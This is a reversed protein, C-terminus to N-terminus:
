VQKLDGWAYCVMRVSEGALTLKKVGPQPQGGMKMYFNRYPSQELVWVVMSRIDKSVLSKVAARFLREGTGQRQYDKLLYLGYLEGIGKEPHSRELGADAFGIIDGGETVAVQVSYSFDKSQFSQTFVNLASEYSMGSLFSPPMLGEYTSQWSATFVRAVPEVDAITAPRIKM